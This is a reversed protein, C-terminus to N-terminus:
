NCKLVELVEDEILAPIFSKRDEDSLNLIKEKPWAEFGVAEGKEVKLDKFNGDYLYAYIARIFNNTLGTVQDHTKGRLMKIFVPQDKTARLGTEEEMEKLATSEYDDGIEVHGGVTSDLLDPYTDKNKERHQFIIEGKPTYFWVHAERHLLGQKHINVRTEEGIVKGTEDVINLKRIDSM